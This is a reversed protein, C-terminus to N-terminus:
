PGVSVTVVGTVFVSYASATVTITQTGVTNFYIQTSSSTSPSPVNNAGTAQWTYTIPLTANTPSIVTAVSCPNTSSGGSNSNCLTPANLTVSSLTVPNVTTGVSDSNNVPAPDTTTSTIRVINTIAAPINTNALSGTIVITRPTNDGALTAATWTIANSANPGVQSFGSPLSGVVGGFTVAAPLQSTLTVNQAASPGTNTFTLTYQIVGGATVSAPGTIAVALNAEPPVTVSGTASVQGGRNAAVVNIAKNGTTFTYTVSSTISYVTATYTAQDSVTWTFTIPFTANAPSVAAVLTCTVNLGCTGPSQALSVSSPAVPVVTTTVNSTNNSSDVEPTTSSIALTNVVTAPPNSNTVTGTFVITQPTSNGALTAATWTIVNSADSDDLTFGGPQSSVGGFTVAAPLRSTLTVNQAATPGTNTFILTYQIVDGALVSAPGDVTAALDAAPVIVSGSGPGSGGSNTAIVNIAKSGGTTFTYTVSSTISYVMVTQTLEGTATWTFTIPLTANAPNATATLVCPQDLVCPYSIPADVGSPAVPVVTTTTTSMNNAASVEPTSSGIELTNTIAVPPNSNTITVTLRIQGNALGPLTSTYWYLANATNVAVLGFPLVNTQSIVRVGAPLTDTIYVEQADSPGDNAVTLTYVFTDGANVSSRANTVARLDAHTTLTTTVNSTNNSIFPDVGATSVRFSNLVSGTASPQVTSTILIAMSAGPLMDGLNCVIVGSGPSCNANSSAGIFAVKQDLTDTLVVSAAMSQNSNTVTVINVLQSGADVTAPPSQRVSLDVLTPVQITVLASAGSLFETSSVFVTNTVVGVYNPNITGYLTISVTSNAAITGGSCSMIGADIRCLLQNSLPEDTKLFEVPLTDSVIAGTAPSSGNNTILITYAVPDGGSAIAPEVLKAVSLTVNRVMNTTATAVNNALIMDDADSEVNASNALDGAAVSSSVVTSVTVTAVQGVSLTGVNCVVPDGLNCSGQTADAAGHQPGVTVSIIGPLAGLDDSELSTRYQFYRYKPQSLNVLPNLVQTQWNTYYSESGFPGVFAESACPSACARVQFLQRTVGRLYHQYVEDASLERNYVATEDLSGTMRYSTTSWPATGIRVANTTDLIGNSVTTGNTVIYSYVQKGNVYLRFDGGKQFTVVLHTWENNSITGAQATVHTGSPYLWFEPYLHNNIAGVVWGSYMNGKGIIKQDTAANKLNVWAEISISPIENTGSLPWHWAPNDNVVLSQISGSSMYIATSFVGTQSVGPGYNVVSATNSISNISSDKFSPSTIENYHYLAVTGSMDANGTLFTTESVNNDPLQLQNPTTSQWALTNWSVNRGADILRSTYEGVYRLHGAQHSYINQIESASMGRSLIAVEDLGGSYFNRNGGRSGLYLHSDNQTECTYWFYINCYGTGTTDTTSGDLVGDIYLYLASSNKVFAVHHWRGDNVKTTSQISPNYASDYRAAIVSGASGVTQNAIRVVFPYGGSNSWKEIISNDSYITNTQTFGPNVWAMVTFDDNLDFNYRALNSAELYENSGNFQMGSIIRGPKLSEPAAVSGPKIAVEVASASSTDLFNTNGPLLGNLHLLLQTGSMSQWGTTSSYDPLEWTNTLPKLQLVPSIYTTGNMGSTVFDSSGLYQDQQDAIYATPLQIGSPLNDSITVNNAIGPGNNSVVLTYDLASGGMSTEASGSKGISVDAVPCVSAYVLGNETYAIAQGDGNIMPDTSSGGSTLQGKNGTSATYLYINADDNVCAVRLGNASISPSCRNSSNGASTIQTLGSTTDYLFAQQTHNPNQGAVLDEDSVFVVRSGDASISPHVDVLISSTGIPTLTAGTIDALYLTSTTTGRAVYAIKTGDASNVPEDNVIETNGATVQTYTLLQTDTLTAIFIETSLDSNAGVLDRNSVFVVSKGDASIHPATNVGITSTTIQTLTPTGTANVDAVFIEFNGDSNGGTLDRDSAFAMLTGSANLTPWLNFGGLISGTSSTVQTYSSATSDYLFVELNGDHNSRSSDFSGTSWFAVRNGGTNIFPQGSTYGNTVLRTTCANTLAASAQIRAQSSTSQPVNQLSNPQTQAATQSHTLPLVPQMVAAAQEVRPTSLAAAPTSSLASALVLMGSIFVRWATSQRYMSKNTM